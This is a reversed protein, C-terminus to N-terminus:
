GLRFYSAFTIIYNDENYSLYRYRHCETKIIGKFVGYPHNSEINLYSYTNFPKQYIRYHFKGESYTEYGIGYSIDLFVTIFKNIKFEIELEKAYYAVLRKM